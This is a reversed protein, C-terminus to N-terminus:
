CFRRRHPFIPRRGPPQRRSPRRWVLIPRAKPPQWSSPVPRRQRPKRTPRSKRKPRRSSHRRPLPWVITRRKTRQLSNPSTRSRRSSRQVRQRLRRGTAGKDRSRRGVKSTRGRTAPRRCGSSETRSPSVRLGFPRQSRGGRGIQPRSRRRPGDNRGTRDSPEDRGVEAESQQRCDASIQVACDALTRELETARAKLPKIAATLEALKKTAQEKLGGATKAQAAADAAAKAAATQEGEARELAFVNRRYSVPAQLNWYIAYTGPRTGRAVLMRLLEESQGKPFAKNQINLNGIALGALTMTVDGDFGNRRVLKLPLLIQRGQNVELRAVDTSLQFPATEKMVSLALSQGVRSVAPAM